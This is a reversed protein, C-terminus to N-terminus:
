KSKGKRKPTPAQEEVMPAPAHTPADGVLVAPPDARTELDPHRQAEAEREPPVPRWTDRVYERGELARISKHPYVSKLRAEM